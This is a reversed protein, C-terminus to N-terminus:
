SQVVVGDVDYDLSDRKETWERHYSIVERLIRASVCHPNIKFGLKKFSSCIKGSPPMEQGNIFIYYLFIISVVVAVEKPGIRRISCHCKQSQNGKKM